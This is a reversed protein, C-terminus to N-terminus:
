PCLGRLDRSKVVVATIDDLQAQNHCFARVAHYLNYVIQAPSDTRYMRVLAVARELGFVSEDPARAEVIGDTLLLVLDGPVLFVGPAVPFEADPLIGLPPGTSSLLTKVAGTAAMVFGSTHGANSYLLRRTQSDIAAFFLTVFYDDPIDEALRRNALSMVRGLDEQTMAFARLYARTTTAVLAPGLGHGTADAVVIAQSANNLSFFDFYDGGTEVASHCAGAIEFGALQPAAVAVLRHQIKQAICLQVENLLLAKEAKQREMFQSIQGGISAMMQVIEDDPQRIERSFFEMVGLFDTGNRVPFAVAGHLSQEHAMSTRPGDAEETVDPIWVVGDAAWVRGPLDVGTALARQLSVQIFQPVNMHPAHWVEICRLLEAGADLAWFAGVDWDLSQAISQLIRPAAEALRHSEALVRVVGHEVAVHREARAIEDVQSQYVEYMEDVLGDHGNHLSELSVGLREAVLQMGRQGEQGDAVGLRLWSGIQGALRKAEHWPLAATAASLAEYLPLAGNKPEHPRM